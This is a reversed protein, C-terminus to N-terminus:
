QKNFREKLKEELSHLESVTDVEIIDGKAMPYIGLDFAEKHLFMPIDDWYVQTNKKAIFEYELLEKLKQGDTSTWRSVSYLQWGRQGGTRSCSLMKEATGQMLWEKTSTETWVAHYGSKQFNKHFITPNQLWQDGDLLLSNELHNRAIYLSSINNCSLYHPNYLLKAGWKEYPLFQEAFHGCVIYIEDVGQKQLGSLISEIMPKGLIPLLPKATHLTLPQMRNGLGAAMIVARQIKNM